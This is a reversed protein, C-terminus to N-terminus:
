KNHEYNFYKYIWSKSSKPNYLILINNKNKTILNYQKKSIHTFENIQEKM